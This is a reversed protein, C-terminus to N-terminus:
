PEDIIKSDPAATEERHLNGKAKEIIVVMYTKRDAIIIWPNKGTRYKRSRFFIL